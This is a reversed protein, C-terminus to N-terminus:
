GQYKLQFVCLVASGSGVNHKNNIDINISPIIPFSEKLNILRRSILADNCCMSQNKQICFCSQGCRNVAVQFCFFNTRINKNSNLTSFM